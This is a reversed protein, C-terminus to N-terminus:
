AIRSTISVIDPIGLRDRHRRVFDDSLKGQLFQTRRGQALDPKTRGMGALLSSRECDRTCQITTAVVRDLVLRSDAACRLTNLRLGVGCSFSTTM